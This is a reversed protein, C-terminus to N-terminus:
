MLEAALMRSSVTQELGRRDVSFDDLKERSKM